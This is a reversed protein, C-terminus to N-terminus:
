GGLNEKSNKFAMLGGNKRRGGNKSGGSFLWSVWFAWVGFVSEFISSLDDMIDEYNMDSYDQFGKLILVLKEMDIM